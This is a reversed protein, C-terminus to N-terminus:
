KNLKEVHFFYTKESKLFEKTSRPVIEEENVFFQDDPDESFLYRTKYGEKLRFYIRESTSQSNFTHTHKVGEDKVVIKVTCTNALM